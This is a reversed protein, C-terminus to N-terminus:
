FLENKLKKMEGVEVKKFKIEVKEKPAELGKLFYLPPTTYKYPIPTLRRHGKYWFIDLKNPVM